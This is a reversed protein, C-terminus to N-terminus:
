NTAERDQEGWLENPKFMAYHVEASCLEDAYVEEITGACTPM